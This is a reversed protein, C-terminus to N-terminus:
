SDTGSDATVDRGNLPQTPRADLEFASAFKEIQEVSLTIPTTLLMWKVGESCPPTTLSGGYGFYTHDAPLMDAASVMVSDMTQPDAMQLPMNEFVPAFAANDETGEAILAGVVALNGDADAHVFHVEMPYSVGALTHESPHHFHFQKLDYQTGDVTISSGAAYDVQVTHGNNKITLASPQYSFQIDKLNASAPALIDIPSQAKGTECLSFREDLEGWHAPGEEGEYTWHPLPAPTPTADQAAVLGVVFIANLAAIMLLRSFHRKTFFSM